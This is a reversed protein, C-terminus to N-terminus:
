HFFSKLRQQTLTVLGGPPHDINFEGLIVSVSSKHANIDSQLHEFFKLFSGFQESNQSPSRYPSSIMIKENQDNLELLLVEQLYPLNVGGRKLYYRQLTIHKYTILTGTVFHHYM